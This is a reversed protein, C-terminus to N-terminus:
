RMTNQWKTSRRHDFTLWFRMELISVFESYQCFSRCALFYCEIASLLCGLFWWYYCCFLSNSVCVSASRISSIVFLCLVSFFPIFLSFSLVFLRFLFDKWFASFVMHLIFGFILSVFYIHIWVVTYKISIYISIYIYLISYIYTLLNKSSAARRFLAIFWQFHM